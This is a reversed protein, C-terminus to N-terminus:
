VIKSREHHDLLVSTILLVIGVALAGLALYGYPGYSAIYNAM